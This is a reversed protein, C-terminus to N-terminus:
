HPQATKLQKLDDIIEQSHRSTDVKLYTKAINGQPDILFTYRKAIKIIGLNTLAGYSDAVKGDSDSLLPFPLSYKDAFKAHSEPDDVSIGIVKAGLKELQFLDDRFSCAEKTCGPTDDKPYFYLVLWQGAYDTLRHQAKKADLLTFGPAPSGPQPVSAAHAPRLIIFAALGIMLLISLTKLM